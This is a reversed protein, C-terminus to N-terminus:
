CDWILSPMLYIGEANVWHCQMAMDHLGLPLVLVGWVALLLSSRNRLHWANAIVVYIQVLVPPLLLLWLLPLVM